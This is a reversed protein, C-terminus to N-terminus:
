APAALLEERAFKNPMILHDGENCHLLRVLAKFSWKVHSLAREV